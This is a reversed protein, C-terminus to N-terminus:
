LLGAQEEAWARAAAAHNGETFTKDKSTTFPHASCLSMVYAEYFTTRAEVTIQHTRTRDPAGDLAPIGHLHQVGCYPKTWHLNM